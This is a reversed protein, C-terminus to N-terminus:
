DETKSPRMSRAAACAVGYALAAALKANRQTLPKPDASHLIVRLGERRVTVSWGYVEDAEDWLVTDHPDIGELAGGHGHDFDRWDVM